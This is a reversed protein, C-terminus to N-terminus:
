SKGPKGTDTAVRAPTWNKFDPLGQLFEVDKMTAYIPQWQSSVLHNKTPM